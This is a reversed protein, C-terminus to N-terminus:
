WFKGVRTTNLLVREKAMSEVYEGATWEGLGTRYTTRQSGIESKDKM